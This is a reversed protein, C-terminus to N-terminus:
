LIFGTYYQHKTKTLIFYGGIIDSFLTPESFYTLMPSTPEVIGACAFSSMLNPDLHPLSALSNEEEMFSQIDMKETIPQEIKM